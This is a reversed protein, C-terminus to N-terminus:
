HLLIFDVLEEFTIKNDFTKDALFVFNKISKM